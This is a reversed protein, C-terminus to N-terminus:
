TSGIIAASTQECFCVMGNWSEYSVVLVKKSAKPMRRRLESLRVAGDSLAWLLECTWKGSLLSLIRSAEAQLEDSALSGIRATQSIYNETPQKIADVAQKPRPSGIPISLETHEQQWNVVSAYPHSPLAGDKRSSIQM